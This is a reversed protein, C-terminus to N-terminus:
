RRSFPKIASTLGAEVRGLSKSDGDFVEYGGNSKVLTRTNLPTAPAVGIAELLPGKLTKEYRLGCNHM